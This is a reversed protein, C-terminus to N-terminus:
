WVEDAQDVIELNQDQAAPKGEVHEQSQGSM